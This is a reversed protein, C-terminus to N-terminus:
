VEELVVDTDITTGDNSSTYFFGGEPNWMREVFALAHAGRDLWIPDGTLPALLHTFFGYVDNNHETLKRGLRRDNGDM